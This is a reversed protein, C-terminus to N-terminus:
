HEIDEGAISDSATSCQDEDKHCLLYLSGFTRKRILHTIMELYVCKPSALGELYVSFGNKGSEVSALGRDQELVVSCTIALETELTSKM